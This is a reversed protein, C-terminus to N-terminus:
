ALSVCPAYMGYPKGNWFYVFFMKKCIGLYLTQLHDVNAHGSLRATHSSMVNAQRVDLALDYSVGIRRQVLRELDACPRARSTGGRVAGWSVVRRGEWNRLWVDLDSTCPFQFLEGSDPVFAAAEGERCVHVLVVSRLPHWSKVYAPSSSCLVELSPSLPNQTRQRVFENCNLYLVCVSAIPVDSCAAAIHLKMVDMPGTTYVSGSLRVLIVHNEGNTDEVLFDIICASPCFRHPIAVQSGLQCGVHLVRIRYRSLVDGVRTSIALSEPICSSAMRCHVPQTGRRLSHEACAIEWIDSTVDMWSLLPNMVRETCDRVLVATEKCRIHRSFATIPPYLVVHPRDIAGPEYLWRKWTDMALIKSAPIAATKRATLVAWTKARAAFESGIMWAPTVPAIGEQEGDWFPEEPIAEIAVLHAPQVQSARELVSGTTVIAADLDYDVVADTEWDHLWWFERHPLPLANPVAAPPPLGVEEVPAGPAFVIKAGSHVVLSWFYYPFSAASCLTELKRHHELLGLLEMYGSNFDGVSTFSLPRALTDSPLPEYCEAKSLFVHVTKTRVDRVRAIMQIASRVTGLRACGYFFITDFHALEFSCGATIVPSYVLVSARSWSSHIDLMHTQLISAETDATYLQVTYAHKFRAAVTEAQAKTMCPVVVRQGSKVAAELAANWSTLKAHPIFSYDEHLRKTYDLFRLDSTVDPWLRRPLVEAHAMQRCVLVFDVCTSDLMADAVVVTRASGVLRALTTLAQVRLCDSLLSSALMDLVSVVEDIIVVDYAGRIRSISNVVITLRPHQRASIAGDPIASYLSGGVGMMTCSSWALSRRFTIQVVSTRAQLQTHVAERIAKSKGSGKPGQLVCVGRETLRLDDASVRDWDDRVTITGGPFCARVWPEISKEYPMNELATHAVVADDSTRVIFGGPLSRTPIQLPPVPPAEAPGTIPTVPPPVIPPLSLM